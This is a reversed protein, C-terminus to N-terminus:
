PVGEAKASPPTPVEQKKLWVEWSFLIMAALGFPLMYYIVRFALLSSALSATDTTGALVATVLFELVGAGAPVHSIAALAQSLAFMALFTSLHIGHVEPFLARLTLGAFLYDCASSLSAAPIASLRPRARGELKPRWKEPIWRHLKGAQVTMFLAMVSVSMLLFAPGAWAASIWDPVQPLKERTLMLNIGVNLCYGAWAVVSIFIMIAAISLPSMGFRTYTRIRVSGGTLLAGGANISFVMAVFSTRLTVWWPVKEARQHRMAWLDLSSNCLYSLTTFLLALGIHAPGIRGLASLFDAFKLDKWQQHLAWVAVALIGIWLAMALRPTWPHHMLRQWRPEPAVENESMTETMM